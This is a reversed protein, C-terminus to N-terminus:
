ASLSTFTSNNTTMGVYNPIEQTKSFILQGGYGVRYCGIFSYWMTIRFHLAM